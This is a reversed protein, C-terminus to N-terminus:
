KSGTPVVPCDWEIYLKSVSMLDVSGRREQSHSNVYNGHCSHLTILWCCWVGMQARLDLAPKGSANKGSIM